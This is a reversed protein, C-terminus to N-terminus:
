FDEDISFSTSDNGPRTYETVRKEFFNTKGEMSILEMWDFPNPVNYIKAYGLQIIWYDAVYKVYQIMKDSDMGILKVPLAEQVFEEEIDVAQKFMAQVEQESLKNKLKKYVEVAFETHMGEDRSILENSQCLGPMLGSKKLWFIACFSASFFIGEIILQYLLRHAFDFNDNHIIELAFKGKKGISPYHEIADFIEDREKQPYDKMYVDIMQSYMHAHITEIHTQFAYFARIESSGVENYLRFTVSENVIGDSASFFALVHLIFYREDPTLKEWDKVDQALDVEAVRWDLDRHEEYM